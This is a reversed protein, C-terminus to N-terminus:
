ILHGSSNTNDNAVSPQSVELEKQNPVVNEVPRIHWCLLRRSYIFVISRRTFFFFFTLGRSLAALLRWRSISYLCPCRLLFATAEKLTGNIGTLGTFPSLQLQDPSPQPPPPLPTHTIEALGYTDQWGCAGTDKEARDCACSCEREDAYHFWGCCPREKSSDVDGSWLCDGFFGRNNRVEM